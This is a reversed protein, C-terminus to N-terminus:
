PYDGTHRYCLRNTFYQGVKPVFYRNLLANGGVKTLIKTTLICKDDWWEWFGGHKKCVCANNMVYANSSCYLTTTFFHWGLKRPVM